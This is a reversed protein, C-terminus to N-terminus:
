GVMPLFDDRTWNGRDGYAGSYALLMNEVRRGAKKDETLQTPSPPPLLVAGGQWGSDENAWVELQRAFAFVKVPFSVRVYRAEVDPLTVSLTRLVEKEESAPVDHVAKGAYSWAKGDRSVEVDLSEPLTIGSSKQQRFTLAVREL